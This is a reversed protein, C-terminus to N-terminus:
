VGRASLRNIQLKPKPECSKKLFDQMIGKAVSAGHRHHVRGGETKWHTALPQQSNVTNAKFWDQFKGCYVGSTAVEPYDKLVIALGELLETNVSSEGKFTAKILKTAEKVNHLSSARVAAEFGRVRVLRGNSAGISGKEEGSCYVRLGCEKLKNATELAKVDGSLCQHVFREEASVNKRSGGNILHFLQHVEQVTEIKRLAVPISTAKPFALKYMHRSHDGDYLYKTGDPLEAVKPADWLRFDFGGTKKFHAELTKAQTDRNVLSPINVDATPLDKMWAPKEGIVDINKRKQFSKSFSGIISNSM